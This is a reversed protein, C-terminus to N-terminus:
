EKEAWERIKRKLKKEVKDSIEDWEEDLPRDDDTEAWEKLKRMVKLEVKEGIEDWEEDRQRKKPSKYVVKTGGGWFCCVGILFGFDYWGGSNNTEYVLVDSNFIHIVLSIFSIIGHWLGYWFGAPADTSFQPNGAACATLILPISVFLWRRGSVHQDFHM